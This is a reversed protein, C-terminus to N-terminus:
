IVGSTDVVPLILLETTAKALVDPWVLLTESVLSSPSSVSPLITFSGVTVLITERGFISTVLVAETVSM